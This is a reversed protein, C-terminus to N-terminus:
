SAPIAMVYYRVGYFTESFHQRLEVQSSSPFFQYYRSSPNGPSAYLKLASNTILGVPSLPTNGYMQYNGSDTAGHRYVMAPGSVDGYAAASEHGYVSMKLFPVMGSPVNLPIDPARHTGLTGNDTGIYFESRPVYGQAIIPFYPLRSDVLIDNLKPPNPSGPRCIQVYNENSRVVPAGGSGPADNNGAIILYRVDINFGSWSQFRVRDSMVVYRFDPPSSHWGSSALADSYSPTFFPYGSPTVMSDVYTSWHLPSFDSPVTIDMYGHPPITVQGSRVIKVPSRNSDFIMQRGSASWVDFGPRAMAARNPRLALATQGSVLTGTPISYASNDVPLEWVTLLRPYNPVEGGDVYHCVEIEASHPPYSPFETYNVSSRKYYSMRSNTSVYQQANAYSTPGFTGGWDYWVSWSGEVAGDIVRRHEVFPLWPLNFAAQANYYHTEVDGYATVRHWPAPYYTNPTNYPGRPYLGPGGYEIWKTGAIYSLQSNESDFIFKSYDSSPTTFPDDWDNRMIKLVPGVGPKIGARLRSM